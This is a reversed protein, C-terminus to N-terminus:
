LTTKLNLGNTKAFTLAECVALNTVSALIQNVLKTLQGAGSPGCYTILTGMCRLMPEVKRFVKEDGGVMISLTGNKAGVDGGSMPADLFTANKAACAEALKRTASPTISSSRAPSPPTSLEMKESSSKKLM